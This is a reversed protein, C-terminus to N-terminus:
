RCSLLFFPDKQKRQERADRRESNGAEGHIRTKGRYADRERKRRGELERRRALGRLTERGFGSWRSPRGTMPGTPTDLRLVREGHLRNFFFFNSPQAELPPHLHTLRAFQRYWRCWKRCASHIINNYISLASIYFLHRDNSVLSSRFAIRLRVYTLLRFFARHCTPLQYVCV